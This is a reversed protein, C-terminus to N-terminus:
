EGAGSGQRPNPFRRPQWCNLGGAYTGIWLNGQKDELMATVRNGSLGDGSEYYSLRGARFRFAGREDEPGVERDFWVSGDRTTLLAAQGQTSVVKAMRDNQWHVLALGRLWVNTHSDGTVQTAYDNENPFSFDRFEDSLPNWRKTGAVSACWVAGSADEYLSHVERNEEKRGMPMPLSEMRGRRLRNLGRSTGIWLDGNRAACLSHIRKDALGDQESLRQIRGFQLRLLGDKTGIWIAGDLGEALAACEDNVFEPYSDRDLVQFRLGDFRALGSGTGVWLYGDRSQLLSLVRNDPLGQDRAYVRQRFEAAAPTQPRLSISQADAARAAVPCILLAALAVSRWERPDPRDLRVSM